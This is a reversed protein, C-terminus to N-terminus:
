KLRLGETTEVYVEGTRPCVLDTGLREGSRSVWGARRAPNGLMLAHPEVDKTVVAGAGVMAYEGITHGCIITCNAGLTAGRKVLTAAFENKREVHARPTLVNTFVMSPGCFVDDELTVGKYVSVNNQIKCGNGISVDPGITVNQGIVCRAGVRSHGLIHSFHWIKTNEGITVDADIVASEHIFANAAINSNPSITVPSGGDLARQAVSLVELVGIAEAADTRPSCKGAVCDLFHQMEARLPEGKEVAIKEGAGKVFEPVAGNWKVAHRYLVLKDEWDPATDDFVAMAADGVVALRHEKYPNLWSSFVHAKLGSAFALDVIALDALAPQVAAKGSASVRCPSEGSLALIMSFDHPALSWLANEETRIRGQNLRNSYIYQLRGLAGGRVLALLKVFVPHYQLLHGVMLVRDAERAKAAMAHADSLSLAIPKEVYVHKGADLAAIAMEAHTAAPTAIAVASIDGRAFAAARNAAFEVDLEKAIARGRAEDSDCILALADLGALERAVNRGWAGCGLLLVKAQGESMTPSFERSGTV